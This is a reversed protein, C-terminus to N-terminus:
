VTINCQKSTSFTLIGAWLDFYALQPKWLKEWNRRAAQPTIGSCQDCGSEEMVNEIMIWLTGLIVIM